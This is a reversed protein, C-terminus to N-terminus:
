SLEEKLIKNKIKRKVNRIYIYISNCIVQYLCYNYCFLQGEGTLFREEREM